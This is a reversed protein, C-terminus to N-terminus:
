RGLRDEIWAQDLAGSLGIFVLESGGRHRLEASAKRLSWRGGVRQLVMPRETDDDLQVVGKARVVSDPLDDMLRDIAARPIPHPGQWTWSEFLRDAENPRGDAPDPEARRDAVSRDPIAGFLLEPGVQAQDAEVMVADPALETLWAATGALQGADVLDVKNLVLIDAARIQAQVTDGVYKDTSRAQVTEADVVVVVADLRLGPGHGYAAVTGPDAVGSAEIVLRQPLPELERVTTLAAAFGDVLSCCICGNALSITDGDDSEILAEDINIDGFDNVLVAIREDATRLIHNVLTTKGAGLYGGIVTVDIDPGTTGSREAV